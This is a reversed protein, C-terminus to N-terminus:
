VKVVMENLSKPYYRDVSLTLNLMTHTTGSKMDGDSPKIELPFVGEMVYAMGEKLTLRSPEADKKLDAFQRAMNPVLWTFLGRGKIASALGTGGTRPNTVLHHWKELVELTRQSIAYKLVVSISSTATDAGPSHNTQQLYKTTITGVSRSPFPWSDVAFEVNETWDLNLGQPLSITCKFLDQRQQDLDSGQSAWTNNYNVRSM